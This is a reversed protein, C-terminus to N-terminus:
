QLFTKFQSKIVFSVHNFEPPYCFVPIIPISILGRM